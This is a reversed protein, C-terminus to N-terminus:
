ALDPGAAESAHARLLGHRFEESVVGPQAESAEWKSFHNAM